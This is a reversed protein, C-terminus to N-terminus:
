QPHLDASAHLDNRGATGTSPGTLNGAEHDAHLCADRSSTKERVCRGNWSRDLATAGDALDPAREQLEANGRETPRHRMETIEAALEDFFAAPEVFRAERMQQRQALEQRSGRATLESEREPQDTRAPCPANAANMANM